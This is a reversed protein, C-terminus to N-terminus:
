LVYIKESEDADNLNNFIKDKKNAIKHFIYTFIAWM